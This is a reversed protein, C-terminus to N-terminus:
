RSNPLITRVTKFPLTSRSRKLVRLPGPGHLKWIKCLLRFRETEVGKVEEYVQRGLEMYDFDTRYFIDPELEVRTQTRLDQIEGALMLLRLQEFRDREATSDFLQGTWGVAKKAGYKNSRKLVM